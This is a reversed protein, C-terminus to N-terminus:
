RTRRELWADIWDLLERHEAEIGSLRDLMIGENFTYVLSVLAELPVDLELEDRAGAFAERLVERWEEHVRVLREQLEPRNWALAQLEFWIKQYPRDEDLYAMATRWKELFPVDAAYMQRQRAILRDTFRELVRVLLQEVSGFYYHVLGHNAGAEEAVRRTTIGAAGVDVLLREAADLLAQETEHGPRVAAKAM